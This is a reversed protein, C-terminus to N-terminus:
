DDKTILEVRKGMGDRIRRVIGDYEMSSLLRSVKSNTFGVQRVLEAQWMNNDNSTLINVVSKADASMMPLDKKKENSKEEYNEITKETQNTYIVWAMALGSLVGLSTLFLSYILYPVIDGYTESNILIPVAILNLIMLVTLTLILKAIRDISDSLSINTEKMM